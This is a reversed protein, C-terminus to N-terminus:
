WPSGNCGPGREVYPPGLLTVGAPLSIAARADVATQAGPANLVRVRIEVDQGPVLEVAQAELSVRLDAPVVSSGGGVGGGAAPQETPPPPTPPPPPAAPTTAEAQASAEGLNGAADLARLVYRYTTSRAISTDTWNAASTTTVLSGNRYVRYEVPASPDSVANWQVDVRFPEEGPTASPASPVPPPTYDGSPRGGKLVDCDVSGSSAAAFAASFAAASPKATLDAWLAGSQWGELRPEDALLFNLIGTVFPQCAALRTADLIQTRQDPAASGAAPPPADPEGGADAPLVRAVTETGTYAASKAPDVVTQFGSELYWIAPCVAGACEGPLPQGTATFARSLNLMLKNWDGQGITTSGIHRTWPREDPTLPYPHFAVADLM